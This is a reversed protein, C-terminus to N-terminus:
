SHEDLLQVFQRPSFVPIGGHSKLVLLDNDGTVIADAKAAVAAALVEGDDRDRSVRKTVPLPKVVTVRERTANIFPVRGPDVDFKDRLKEDLEALLAESSFLEHMPQRPKM